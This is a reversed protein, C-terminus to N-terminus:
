DHFPEGYRAILRRSIAVADGRPATEHPEHAAIWQREWDLLVREFAVPDFPRGSALAARGAAVYQRWRTVYFNKLLGAWEKRAYDRLIDTHGWITLQRRAGLELHDKEADTAGWRRADALWRGLLFEERTGVLEDLDSLVDIMARGLADFRAAQGAALAKQLACKILTARNSLAQRGLNVLDFAYTDLAGLEDGAQLLHDWARELTGDRPTAVAPVSESPRRLHESREPQFRTYVAPILLDWARVAAPELRGYRRRVFRRGWDQLDVAEDRWGQEFFFDYAIPNYCLGENVMGIGALRGRGPDRRAAMLGENNAGLAATLQTNRGFNQVNCWLWPKGAFARTQNWMPRDECHLDLVLVRDDPVGGLFAEIRPQTWFERKDMFAWGQLVWVADPDRAQMGGYIARGLTALYDLEGSPPTMEIFTDAAYLHDTGFSREQEEAYVAALTAFLPDLPDLLYTTWEHWRITHVRAAPHKVLLGAPIHGTFGQLVPTMGLARERALIARGLQEHQECWNAPLPGGWGDLCGMWGFPLYAAGAIFEQLHQESLGLRGGVRRWVQEQGTVALPRNVGNLAMWDILREWQPWDWHALSYSFCCYNLFYRHAAWCCRRLPAPVPPPPDPLQLRSGYWSVHLGAVEKLYTHLGMTLASRSTGRVEIAGGRSSVEFTEKEARMDLVFRFHGAAAPGLLRAALDTVASEASGAAPPPTDM